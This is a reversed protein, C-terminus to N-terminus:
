ASCLTIACMCDRSPGIYAPANWPQACNTASPTFNMWFSLTTGAAASRRTNSHAGITAIRGYMAARAAMGSAGPMTPASRSEPRNKTSATILM